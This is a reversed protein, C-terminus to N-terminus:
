VPMGRFEQAIYRVLHDPATGTSSGTGRQLIIDLKPLTPLCEVAGLKRLNPTLACLPFVSAALGAYVAAQLGAISDSVAVITSSRGCRDLAELAHQRFISGMPMLALPLPKAAPFSADKAAVWVLPEERIVPGTGFEPQRTMIAVDIEDRRLEAFLHISRSCRLEIQVNPYVRAFGSLVTPLLFAAYLDPVGLRVHGVVDPAHFRHRIEDNLTLMTRAYGHLMEGESTLKVRANGHRRDNCFLPKGVAKELRHMQHTVAPQTRGVLRGALTVSGTANLAVFTRLLSIEFDPVM